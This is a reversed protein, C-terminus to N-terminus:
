KPKCNKQTIHIRHSLSGVKNKQIDIDLQGSDTVRKGEM